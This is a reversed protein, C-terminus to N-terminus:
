TWSYTGPTRVRSPLPSWRRQGLGLRRECNRLSRMVFLAAAKTALSAVALRLRSTPELTAHSLLLTRYFPCHKVVVSDPREPTKTLTVFSVGGATYANIQLSVIFASGGSSNTWSALLGDAGASTTSVNLPLLTRCPQSISVLELTGPFPLRLISIFQEASRGNLCPSTNWTNLAYFMPISHISGGNPKLETRATTLLHLLSWVVREIGVRQILGSLNAYLTEAKKATASRNAPPMKSLESATTEFLYLLSGVGASRAPALEGDEENGPSRSSNPAPPM